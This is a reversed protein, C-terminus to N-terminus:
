RLLMVQARSDSRDFAISNQEPAAQSNSAGALLIPRWFETWFQAQLQSIKLHKCTKGIKGAGFMVPRRWYNEPLALANSKGIRLRDLM